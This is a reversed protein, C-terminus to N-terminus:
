QNIGKNKKLIVIETYKFNQTVNWDRVGPPKGLKEGKLKILYNKGATLIWARLMRLVNAKRSLTAPIEAMSVM